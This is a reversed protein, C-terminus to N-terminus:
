TMRLNEAFMKPLKRNSKGENTLVFKLMLFEYNKVMVTYKCIYYNIYATFM